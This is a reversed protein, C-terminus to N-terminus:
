VTSQPWSNILRGSRFRISIKFINIAAALIVTALKQQAGTIDWAGKQMDIM